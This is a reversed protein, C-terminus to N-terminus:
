TYPSIVHAEIIGDCADIFQGPLGLGHAQGGLLQGLAVLEAPDVDVVNLCTKHPLHFVGIDDSGVTCLFFDAFLILFVSTGWSFFLQLKLWRSLIKKGLEDLIGM